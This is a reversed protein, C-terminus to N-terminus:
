FILGPNCKSVLFVWCYLYCTALLIVSKEQYTRQLYELIFCFLVQRNVVNKWKEPCDIFCLMAMMKKKEASRPSKETMKLAKGM